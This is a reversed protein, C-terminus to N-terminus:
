QYPPTFTGCSVFGSRDSGFPIYAATHVCAGSSDPVLTPSALHANPYFKLAREPSRESFTRYYNRHQGTPRLMSSRYYTATSGQVKKWLSEGLFFKQTTSTAAGGSVQVPMNEANWAIALGDSRSSMNGNADYNYTLGGATALAHPGRGTGAYTQSAGEKTTLNGLNDYGYSYTTGGSVMSILQGLSDYTYTAGLSTSVNDTVGTVNGSPDFSYTYNQLTTGNANVFSRIQNLRLESSDNYTHDQETGDGLALQTTQGRVNRVVSSVITQASGGPLTATVAHQADGADFTYGVVEGDPFASSVVVTGPGSTSPNQPYGYAIQYVYSVADRVHQVATARGLTDYQNFTRVLGNGAWTQRGIQNASTNVVITTI